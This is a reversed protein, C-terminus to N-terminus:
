FMINNNKSTSSQLIQKMEENLADNVHNLSINKVPSSKWKIQM